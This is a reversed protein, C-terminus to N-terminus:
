FNLRQEEEQNLLSWLLDQGGPQGIALFVCGMSGDKYQVIFHPRGYKDAKLRWTM